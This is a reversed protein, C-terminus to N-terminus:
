AAAPVTLVAIDCIIQHIIGRIGTVGRRPRVAAPLVTRTALGEREELVRDVTAAPTDNVAPEVALSHPAPLCYELNRVPCLQCPPERPQGARVALRVRGWPRM